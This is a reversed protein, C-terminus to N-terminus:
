AQDEVDDEFIEYTVREDCEGNLRDLATRQQDGEIWEQAEENSAFARCYMWSDSSTETYTGVIYVKM